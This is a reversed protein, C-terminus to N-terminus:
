PRRARGLLNAMEEEFPDGGAEAADVVRPEPAQIQPAHAQPAHVQPVQVEPAHAEPAHVQPVPAAPADPEPAAIDPTRIEPTRLEPTRPEPVRFDSREPVRPPVRPPMVFPGAGPAAALAHPEDIKPEVAMRYPPLPAAPREVPREPAREAATREAPPTAPAAAVHTARRIPEIEPTAPRRLSEELQDVMGAFLPDVKVSVRPSSEEPVPPEIVPEARMPISPPAHAPEEMETLRAPPPRRPPPTVPAHRPEPPRTPRTIPAPAAERPARPTEAMPEPIRAPEPVRAPEHARAAEHPRVTEHARIAGIGSEVLLDSGGGLIVLHQIDDRQILVLRRADDIQVQDVVALRHGAVLGHNRRRRARRGLFVVLIALLVLGAFALLPVGVSGLDSLVDMMFWMEVSRLGARVFNRGRAPFLGDKTDRFPADPM